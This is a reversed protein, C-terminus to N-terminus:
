RLPYWREGREAARGHGPHPDYRFHNAAVVLVVPRYSRRDDPFLPRSCERYLPEYQNTLPVTGQRPLSLRAARPLGAVRRIRVKGFYHPSLM